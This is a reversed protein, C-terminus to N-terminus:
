LLDEGTKIMNIVEDIAAIMGRYYDGDMGRQRVLDDLAVNRAGNLREVVLISLHSHSWEVFEENTIM